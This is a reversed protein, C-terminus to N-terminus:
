NPTVNRRLDEVKPHRGWGQLHDFDLNANDGRFSTLNKPWIAFM